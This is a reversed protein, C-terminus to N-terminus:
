VKKPALKGSKAARRFRSDRRNVGPVAATGYTAGFKKGLEIGLLQVRSEKPANDGTVWDDILVGVATPNDETGLIDLASLGTGNTPNTVDYTVDADAADFIANVHPVLAQRFGAKANRGQGANMRMQKWEAVESKLEAVNVVPAGGGGADSQDSSSLGVSVASRRWLVGDGSAAAASLGSRENAHTLRVWEADVTFGYGAGYQVCHRGGGTTYGTVRATLWQGEFEIDVETGVPLVVESAFRLLVKV